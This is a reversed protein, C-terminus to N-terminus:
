LSTMNDEWEKLSKLYEEETKFEKRTPPLDYWHCDDFGKNVVYSDLIENELYEKFNIYEKGNIPKHYLEWHDKSLSFIGQGVNIVYHGDIFSYSKKLFFIGEDTNPFFKINSNSQPNHYGKGDLNETQFFGFVESKKQLLPSIYLDKNVFEYSLIEVVKYVEKSRGSDHHTFKFVQGIFMYLIENESLTNDVQRNLVFNTERGNQSIARVRLELSKKIM